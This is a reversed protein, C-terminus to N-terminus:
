SRNEPTGEQCSSYTMGKLPVVMLASVTMSLTRMGTRTLKQPQEFSNLLRLMKSWGSFYRERVSFERKEPDESDQSALVIM